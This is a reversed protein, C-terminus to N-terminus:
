NRRTFVPLANRISGADVHSLKLRHVAADIQFDVVFSTAGFLLTLSVLHTLDVRQLSRRSAAAGAPM